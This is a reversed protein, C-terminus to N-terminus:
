KLYVAGHVTVAKMCDPSYINGRPHKAPAKWSAAKLIDGNLRNIFCHVSKQGESGDAHISTSVIRVFKKGNPDISIQNPQETDKNVMEQLQIVFHNLARQFGEEGGLTLASNVQLNNGLVADNIEPQETM